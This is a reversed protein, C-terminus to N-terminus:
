TISEADSDDSGEEDSDDDWEMQMQMIRRRRWRLFMITLVFMGVMSLGIKRGLHRKHVEAPAVYGCPEFGPVYAKTKHDYLGGVNECTIRLCDYNRELTAKILAFDATGDQGIQMNSFLTKADLTNCHFIIPLITTAFAAGTGEMAEDYEETSTLYAYRLTAQILPVYYMTVIRDKIKRAGTCDNNQLVAKLEDFGQMIVSNVQSTGKIGNGNAGCTKFLECYVDALEYMLNGKENGDSGALGGVYYALAQDLAGVADNKCEEKYCGIWCKYLADELQRITFLSMVMYSVIVKVTAARGLEHYIKFDMNGVAFHTEYRMFIAEIYDAAFNVTGFYDLYKQLEGM